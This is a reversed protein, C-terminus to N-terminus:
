FNEFTTHTGGFSCGLGGSDSGMKTEVFYPEYKNYVACCIAVIVVVIVLPPVWVWKAVIGADGESAPLVSTTPARGTSAPGLELLTVDCCTLLHSTMTTVHPLVADLLLTQPFATNLDPLPGTLSTLNIYSTGGTCFSGPLWPFGVAM